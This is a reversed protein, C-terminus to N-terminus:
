YGPGPGRMGAQAGGPGAPMKEKTPPTPYVESAVEKRMAEETVGEGFVTKVAELAEDISGMEQQEGADSEIVFSGDPRKIIMAYVEGGGEAGLDLKTPDNGPTIAAPSAAAAPAPGTAPLAM